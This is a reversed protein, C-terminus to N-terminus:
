FPGHRPGCEVSGKADAPARRWVFCESLARPRLWVTADTDPRPVDTRRVRRVFPMSGSWYTWGSRWTQQTGVWCKRSWRPTLSQGRCVPVAMLLHRDDTSLQGVKRQIMGRVSEPLERQFDPVARVLDWRDDKQVIVGRDHLHRLLDVKFLPNGETRANHVDAIEEPYQNGYYAQTHYRDFEYRILLPLAIERCIGKGQLELKVAGFPHQSRLLDSPRYTVVFVLRLETCRAGLYALLDVSSPDAWHVDELFVVAPHHRSLERLFSGLERKRREQSAQALAVNLSSDDTALPALQVYWTPALVKMVQAASAGHEGQLLNDLAELFPLYAEAGALRESCRGRAVSWNQDDASLDELFNEVLVTKGLGPEGTVCLMSGRGAAADDLATRLAAWENQRGVTLTRPKVRQQSCAPIKEASDTLIAEVEMATPRLASDKSLMRQILGELVAPIEPNLRSPVVPVRAIVAQLIGVKSDARFPHHGTALEYFVTGLSFVDSSAEVPEARAQEPSMYLPTGIPSGPETGTGEPLFRHSESKPLQRALGFDLVKVIGDDRVMVNQPKIDRHIVGAAHAAALARAIQRIIGALESLPRPEFAALTQGEVLEMSLFPRGASEGTDYITCINPHNLASATRAERQFRALWVPDQICEAPLFKLAVRRHLSLQQAEYVAGMGGSGLSSLVQYGDVVPLVQPRSDHPRVQRLSGVVTSEEFQEPLVERYEPFREVYEDIAVAQKGRQRFEYEAGILELATRRDNALEPYRGLYEEVRAAEGRKLRLELDIHVLEILTRLRLPDGIPLHEDIAPRPTERWATEFRKIARKLALWDEDFPSPLPQSVPLM